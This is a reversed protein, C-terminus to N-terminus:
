SRLICRQRQEMPTWVEVVRCPALHTGIPQSVRTVPLRVQGQTTVLAATSYWNPGASTCPLRTVARPGRAGPVWPAVSAMAARGWSSEAAQVTRFSSAASAGPSPQERTNRLERADRQDTPRPSAPSSPEHIKARSSSLMSRGNVTRTLTIRRHRRAGGGEARDGSVGRLGVPVRRSPRSGDERCSCTARAPLAQVVHDV